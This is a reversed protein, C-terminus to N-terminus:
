WPSKAYYYYDGYSFRESQAEVTGFLGGSLTASLSLSVLLVRDVLFQRGM